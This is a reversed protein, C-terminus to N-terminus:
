HAVLELEADVRLDIPDLLHMVPRASWTLGLASRSVTGQLEVKIRGGSIAQWTGELTVPYEIGKIGLFGTVAYRDTVGSLHRIASSRFTIEPHNAVDFFDKGQLHTDRRAVGSEQSAAPARLWVRATTLDSGDMEVTGTAGTFRGRASAPILMLYRKSALWTVNTRDPIISWRTTESTAAPTATASPRDITIVDQAM